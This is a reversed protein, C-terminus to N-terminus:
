RDYAQGGVLKLRKYKPLQGEALVSCLVGSGVTVKINRTVFGNLLLPQKKQRWLEQKSCIYWV